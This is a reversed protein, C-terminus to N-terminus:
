QQTVYFRSSTSINLLSYIYIYLNKKAGTVYIFATACNIHIVM